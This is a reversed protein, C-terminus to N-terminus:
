DKAPTLWFFLVIFFMFISSIIFLGTSLISRLKLITKHILFFPAIYILVCLYLKENCSSQM